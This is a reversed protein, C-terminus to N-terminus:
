DVGWFKKVKIDDPGFFKLNFFDKLDSILLGLGVLLFWIV